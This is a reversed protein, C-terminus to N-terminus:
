SALQLRLAAPDRAPLRCVFDACLYAGPGRGALLAVGDDALAAADEPAAGLVLGGPHYWDRAADRFADRLDPDAVLVLQHPPEALGVAVRLVGAAGLPHESASPSAAVDALAARAAATPGSPVAGESPDAAAGAALGLDALVPDTGQPPRLTGDPGVTADVLRLGARVFRAEGTLGGLVLLASAFAGHDELTA